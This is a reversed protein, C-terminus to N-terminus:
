THTFQGEILLNRYADRLRFGSGFTRQIYESVEGYDRLKDGENLRIAIAHDLDGDELREAIATVTYM